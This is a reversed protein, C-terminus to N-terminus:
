LLLTRPLPLHSAKWMAQLFEQDSTIADLEEHIRHNATAASVPAYNALRSHKLWSWLPEVPNLM